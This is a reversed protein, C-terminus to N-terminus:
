RAAAALVNAAFRGSATAFDLDPELMVLRWGNSEARQILGAFDVVSRSVRDIRVALLSSM